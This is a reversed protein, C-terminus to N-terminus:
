KAKDEKEKKKSQKINTQIKNGLPAYKKGWLWTNQDPKDPIKYYLTDLDKPKSTSPHMASNRMELALGAQTNILMSRPDKPLQDLPKQLVNSSMKM